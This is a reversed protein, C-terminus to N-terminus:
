EGGLKLIEQENVNLDTAINPATPRTTYFIFLLALIIILILWQNTLLFIVLTILAAGELIAWRTINASRYAVLKESLTAPHTNIKKLKRKFLIRALAIAIVEILASLLIMEAGYKGLVAPFLQLVVLVTALVVFIIQGAFLAFHLVLLNKVQPPPTPEM